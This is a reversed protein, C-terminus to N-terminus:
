KRTEEQEGPGVQVVRRSKNSPCLCYLNPAKARVIEEGWFKNGLIAM